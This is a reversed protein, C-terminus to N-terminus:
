QFSGYHTGSWDGLHSQTRDLCGLTLATYTSKEYLCRQIVSKKTRTEGLLRPIQFVKSSEQRPEFSGTNYHRAITQHICALHTLPYESLSYILGSAQLECPILSPPQFPYSLMNAQPCYSDFVLSIAQARSIRVLLEAEHECLFLVLNMQEHTWKYSLGRLVQSTALLKNPEPVKTVHFVLTGTKMLRM